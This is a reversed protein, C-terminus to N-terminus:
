GLFCRQLRERRRAKQKLEKEDYNNRYSSSFMISQSSSPRPTFAIWCSDDSSIESEDSRGYSDELLSRECEDEESVKGLKVIDRRKEKFKEQTKLREAVLTLNGQHVKKVLHGKM